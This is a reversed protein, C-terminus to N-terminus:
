GAKGATVDLMAAVAKQQNPYLHGYTNLTIKIDKHGVREKILLPEVGQNILYAVHSHRLDHVRIAKVGAKEIHRKMYTQVAREAIPFLRDTKDLDYISAMYDKLEKALFEPIDIVRVSNETKPTTIMDKANSRHYTKSIHIRNSRLDIDESTLALAEGIRCGTWFLVDFLNYYYSKVDVTKMFTDFEEKTWFEMKAADSKGMKKVKACPNDKLGYIRYAHNFLASLQNQIMRLYTPQYGLEILQNQWQIIHSPTIKNMPMSGFVPIIHKQIMHRKSEASREKIENAKDGFYVEVFNKLLMDMSAQKISLFEAEYQAAEKKTKFGRKHHRKKKGTWDEYYCSCYWSNRETDKYVAM